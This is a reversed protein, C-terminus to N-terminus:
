LTKNGVRGEAAKQAFLGLLRKLHSIATIVALLGHATSHRPCATIAALHIQSITNLRSFKLQTKNLLTRQLYGRICCLSVISMYGAGGARSGSSTLGPFSCKTSNFPHTNTQTQTHIHTHTHTHTHTQAHAHTHTPVPAYTFKKPALTSICVNPWKIIRKIIIQLTGNVCLSLFPNVHSDFVHNHDLHM